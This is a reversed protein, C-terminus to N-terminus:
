NALGAAIKSRELIKKAEAERAVALQDDPMSGDPLIKEVRRAIEDASLVQADDASPAPQQPHVAPEGPAPQLAEPANTPARALGAGGGSWTGVPSYAGESEASRDSRDDVSLAASSGPEDPSSEPDEDPSSPDPAAALPSGGPLTSIDGQADGPRRPMRNADSRDAGSEGGVPEGAIPSGAGASSGARDASEPSRLALWVALGVCIAILAFITNRQM